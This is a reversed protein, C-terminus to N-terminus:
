MISPTVATATALLEVAVSGVLATTSASFTTMVEYPTELGISTSVSSVAFSTAFFILATAAEVWTTADAEVYAHNEVSVAEVEVLARILILPVSVADNVM